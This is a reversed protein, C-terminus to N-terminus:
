GFGGSPGGARTGCLTANENAWYLTEHSPAGGVAGTAGGAHRGGGLAASRPGVPLEVFTFTNLQPLWSFM